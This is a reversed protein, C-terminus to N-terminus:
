QLFLNGTLKPRMALNTTELLHVYRLNSVAALDRRGPLSARKERRRPADQVPGNWTAHQTGM